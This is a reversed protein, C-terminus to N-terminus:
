GNLTIDVEQKPQNQILKWYLMSVKAKWAEDGAKDIVHDKLSRHFHDRAEYNGKTTDVFRFLSWSWHYKIIYGYLFCLIESTTSSPLKSRVEQFVEDQTILDRHDTLPQLESTVLDKDQKQGNEVM